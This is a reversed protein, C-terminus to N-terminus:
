GRWSIVRRPRIRRRWPPCWFGPLRRKSATMPLLASGDGPTMVLVPIAYRESVPLLYKDITYGDRPYRGCFISEPAGPPPQCGSLRRAANRVQALHPLPDRRRQELQAALDITERRNLSMVTASRRWTAIQGTETVRLEEPSLPEIPLEGPDGPLRLHEQFFACRAERNRRTSVHDADDMTMGAGAEYGFARYARRLEALAARTGEISFIDRSTAVILAPKPARALLLDAQDLGRAIGRHFNQEADQPGRTRLLFKFSTIYCEPAAALLRDDFAALYATQTGGGSRGTVGLRAPDVEERSM